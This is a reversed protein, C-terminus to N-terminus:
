QVLRLATTTVSILNRLIAICISKPTQYLKSEDTHLRTERAINKRVIGAVTEATAVPVSFSRVNGGREVLAIV